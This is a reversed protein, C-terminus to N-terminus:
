ARSFSWNNFVLNREIKYRVMYSSIDFHRACSGISDFHIIENTVVNTAVCKTPGMNMINQLHERNKSRWEDNDIAKRTADSISQKFSDDKRLKTIADQQHQKWTQDLAKRKNAAAVSIKLRKQVEDNNHLDDLQKVHNDKWSQRSHVDRMRDLYKQKTIPNDVNEQHTVQRLNVLSNNNKDGDIHDIELGPKDGGLFIREMLKHVPVVDGDLGVVLYGTQNNRSQRKEVKVGTKYSYVRGEPTITYDPHEPIAMENEDLNTM